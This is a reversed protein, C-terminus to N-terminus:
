FEHTLFQKIIMFSSFENILKKTLVKQMIKSHKVKFFSASMHCYEMRIDLEARHVYSLPFLTIAYSQYVTM